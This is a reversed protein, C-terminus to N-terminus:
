HAGGSTSESFLQGLPVIANSAIISSVLVVFAAGIFLAGGGFFIGAIALVTGLVFLTWILALVADQQSPNLSSNSVSCISSIASLGAMAIAVIALAVAFTLGVFPGAALM